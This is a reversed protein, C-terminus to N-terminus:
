KRKLVMILTDNFEFIKSVYFVWIIKAMPIGQPGEPISNGFISYKGLYAQRLVELGMYLSLAVMCANHILSYTKLSFKVNVSKMFAMGLVVMGVYGVTILAVHFPNMLPLDRSYAHMPPLKELVLKNFYQGGYRKELPDVLPRLFQGSWNFADIFFDAM